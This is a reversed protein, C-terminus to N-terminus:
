DNMCKGRNANSNKTAVIELDERILRSLSLNLIYPSSLTGFMGTDQTLKELIADALRGGTKKVSKDNPGQTTPPPLLGAEL